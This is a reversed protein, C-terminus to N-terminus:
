VVAIGRSVGRSLWLVILYKTNYQEIRRDSLVEKGGYGSVFAKKGEMGALSSM